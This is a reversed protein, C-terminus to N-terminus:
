RGLNDDYFKKFAIQKKFYDFDPFITLEFTTPDFYFGGYGIYQYNIGSYKNGKIDYVNSMSGKQVRDIYYNTM